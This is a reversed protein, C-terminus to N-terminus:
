SSSHESKPAEEWKAVIRADSKPRRATVVIKGLVRSLIERRLTVPMQGWQDMLDPTLEVAPKRANVLAELLDSELRSKEALLEDRMRQYVGSFILEDIFRTTFNDLRAGNKIQQRNLTATRNPLALLKVRTSAAKANIEQALGELWPLLTAMIVKEPVYGGSHIQFNGAGSRRYKLTRDHGFLGAYKGYGCQGCFIYGTLLDPNKERRRHQYRAKRRVQYEEWDAEFFLPEHIGQHLEGKHTFKGSSFPIDLVRQVARDSWRGSKTSGYGPSPHVDTSNLWAAITHFSESLLYLRYCDQVIPGEVPHPTFGNARDYNDGFRKRGSAPLGSEVRRRHAERRTDGIREFEFAAFETLM